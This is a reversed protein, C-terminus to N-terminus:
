FIQACSSPAVSSTDGRGISSSVARIACRRAGREVFEALGHRRELLRFSLRPTHEVQRADLRRSRRRGACRGDECGASNAEVAAGDEARAPRPEDDARRAPAPKADDACAAVGRVAGRTHRVRGGRGTEERPPRLPTNPALPAPATSRVDDRRSADDARRKSGGGACPMAGPLAM